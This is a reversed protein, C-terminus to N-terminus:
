DLDAVAEGGGGAGMRKALAAEMCPALEGALVGGPRDTSQVGM